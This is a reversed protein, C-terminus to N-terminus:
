LAAVAELRELITLLWRKVGQADGAKHLNLLSDEAWRVDMSWFARIISCLYPYWRQEDESFPRVSWYGDWFAALIQSEYDSPADEPYDMLRSEFVGQMVADCYLSNDGSRNFDFIGLDGSPALYLNCDSIDGQVAYRPANKLPVLIDMYENYKATISDFIEKCEIDLENELSKFDDYAFLDNFEGFPDFLVRNNVHLDNQEAISHTKALLEGTKRATEQDVVAVENEVFEEVTVIVDYGGICYWKAFRGEAQYQAPTLVGNNKLTDAFRCQSELLELTVDRENKLRIVLSSTDKLLVKVILRVEKSEPGLHEYNYRQLEVFNDIESSINHDKLIREIDTRTIEFM